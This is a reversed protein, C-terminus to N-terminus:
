EEIGNKMKYETWWKDIHSQVSGLVDTVNRNYFAIFNDAISEDDAPVVMMSNYFPPHNGSQCILLEIFGDKIVFVNGWLNDYIGHDHIIVLNSSQYVVTEELNISM